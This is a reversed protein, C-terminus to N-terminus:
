DFFERVQPSLLRHAKFKFDNKKDYDAYYCKRAEIIYIPVEFMGTDLRVFLRKMSVSPNLKDRTSFCCNGDIMRRVIANLRDTIAAFLALYRVLYPWIDSLKTFYLTIIDFLLSIPHILICIKLRIIPQSSRQNPIRYPKRTKHDFIQYYLM